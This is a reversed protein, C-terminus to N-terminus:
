VLQQQRGAGARDGHATHVCRAIMECKGIGALTDVDRSGAVADISSPHAILSCAHIAGGEARGDDGSGEGGEHGFASSALIEGGAM